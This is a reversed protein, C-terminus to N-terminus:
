KKIVDVIWFEEIKCSIGQSNKRGKLFESIGNDDVDKYYMGFESSLHVEDKQLFYFRPIGFITNKQNEAYYRVSKTNIKTRIFQQPQNQQHPVHLLFAFHADDVFDKISDISRPPLYETYSGFVVNEVTQILVIFAHCSHAIETFQKSNIVKEKSSFVKKLTVPTYFFSKLSKEYQSFHISLSELPIQQQFSVKPINKWEILLIESLQCKRPIWQHEFSVTSLSPYYNTIFPYIICETETLVFAGPVGLLYNNETSSTKPYIRFANSSTSIRKHYYNNSKNISSNNSSGFSSNFSNHLSSTQYPNSDNLSFLFHNSDNYDIWKDKNENQNLFSIQTSLTINQSIFTGYIKRDNTKFLLSMNVRKEFLQNIIEIINQEEIEKENQTEEKIEKIEKQNSENSDSFIKHYHIDFEETQIYEKLKDIQLYLLEKLTIKKQNM